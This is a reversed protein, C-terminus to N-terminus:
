IKTVCLLAPFARYHEKERFIIIMTIGLYINHLIKLGDLRTKFIQKEYM